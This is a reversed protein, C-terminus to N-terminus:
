GSIDQNLQHRFTLPLTSFHGQEFVVPEPRLADLMAADSGQRSGM